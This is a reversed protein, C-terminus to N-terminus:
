EGKLKQYAQIRDFIIGLGSRSLRKNLGLRAVIRGFRSPLDMERGIM